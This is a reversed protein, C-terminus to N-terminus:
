HRREELSTLGLEALREEYNAGRLGSVMGVVKRPVNELEEKNQKTWSAGLKYPL